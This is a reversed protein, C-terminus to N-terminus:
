DRTVDEVVRLRGSLLTAVTGANNQELDWVYVSSLGATVTAGLYLTVVGAAAEAVDVTFSAVLGDGSRRRVQARLSGVVPFPDGNVDVFTVVHSYDDGRYVRLDRPAPM